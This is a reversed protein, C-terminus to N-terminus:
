MGQIMKILKPVEQTSSIVAMVSFYVGGLVLGIRQFWGPRIEKPLLILNVALVHFCSFGLAYNYLIGTALTLLKDGPVLTLMILGFLLYICLVGFYLRGIHRTDWKRLWPLATWFVDVWRRLVGDATSAMSTGLVLLGCFLTLYWFLPGVFSLMPGWSAVSEGVATSVGDATMGAALWKDELKTGRPLFQVSLMSPLAIGLFCAPVWLCWQERMVHWLWGRWRPLSDANIPFVMGVHSLEIAHGGVISPIAGVHAGMGWGQDRTYNSMPTNTLGGNGSIAAMSALFGVISLDFALSRGQWLASFVNDVNAGGNEALVPVNGFKVFGSFIERWTDATSYFVGLFLLFGVVVVLKFTMVAKMSNYVKGGVSLPIFVSLFVACALAKLLFADHTTDPLRGLIIAAAPVAANSALYPLISGIDLLLYVFVWFMPGPLTRFKGTFIPEGSYLAYRSIEVNYIAQGLISLTCLWLLSGGFQATITPGTLWEGGGIASAGMVLGPGILMAWNRSKFVPAPPLEGGDWRPMQPSGPHPPTFASGPPAAAATQESASATM